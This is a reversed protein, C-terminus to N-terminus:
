AFVVVANVAAHLLMAAYVSRTRAMLAACAIGLMSAFTVQSLVFGLPLATANALHGLGFAVGDIVVALAVATRGVHLRGLLAVLTTLLVSRFVLEETAPVLVIEVVPSAGSYPTSGVIRLIAYTAVVGAGVAAAIVPLDRRIDGLQFGFRSSDRAVVPVGVILLWSSFLVARPLEDQAGVVGNVLGFYLQNTWAVVSCTVVAGAAVVLTLAWRHWRLSHERPARLVSLAM